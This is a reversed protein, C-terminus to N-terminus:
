LVIVAGLFGLGILFAKTEYWKKQEVIKYTQINVTNVYPNSSKVDISYEKGKTVGIWSKIKKDGVVISLKNPISLKNITFDTHSYTFDFSYFTTDIILQSKFSCSSDGYVSPVSFMVTDIITNTEIFTITEVEKFQKVQKKLEDNKNTLTKIQDITVSYAKNTEELDQLAMDYKTQYSNKEHALIFISIGLLFFITYKYKNVM